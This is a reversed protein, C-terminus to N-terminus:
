NTPPEEGRLFESAIVDEGPEGSLWRVKIRSDEMIDIVEANDWHAPRQAQLRAGPKFATVSTKTLLETDESAFTDISSPDEEAHGSAAADESPTEEAARDRETQVVAQLREAEARVAHARYVFVGSVALAALGGIVVVVGLVVPLTVLADLDDTKEGM